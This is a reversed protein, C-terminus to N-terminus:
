RSEQFVELTLEDFTKRILPALVYGNHGPGFNGSASKFASGTKTWSGRELLDRGDKLTLLGLSYSTTWCYSVSFTMFVKGGRIMVMIGENVPLKGEAREWSNTPQSIIDTEAIRDPETMWAICISQM